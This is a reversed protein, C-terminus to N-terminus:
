TSQLSIEKIKTNSFIKEEHMTELTCKLQTDSKETMCGLFNKFVHLLQYRITKVIQKM